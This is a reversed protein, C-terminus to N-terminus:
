DMGCLIKVDTDSLRNKLETYKEENYICVYEPRFKRAQQELLDTNNNASLGYVKFDHKECVELSQTGISGTSGLVSVTKNM